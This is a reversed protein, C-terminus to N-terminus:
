GVKETAQWSVPLSLNYYNIPPQDIQKLVGGGSRTWNRGAQDRFAIEFGPQKGMGGFGGPFHLRYEGPPIVLIERQEQLSLSAPIQRGSLFGAGQVAIRSVVAQYVPQHSRNSLIVNMGEGGGTTLWASVERAQARRELRQTEQEASKRASREDSIQQLGVYGAIM